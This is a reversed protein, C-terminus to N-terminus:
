PSSTTITLAAPWGSTSDPMVIVSTDACISAANRLWGAAGTGVTMGQFPPSTSKARGTPVPVFTAPATTTRADM